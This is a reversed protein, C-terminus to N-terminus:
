SNTRVVTVKETYGEGFLGFILCYPTEIILTINQFVLLRGIALLVQDFNVMPEVIFILVSKHSM